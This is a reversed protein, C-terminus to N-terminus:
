NQLSRIKGRNHTLTVVSNGHLYPLQQGAYRHQKKEAADGKSLFGGLTWSLFGCRRSRGADAFDKVHFGAHLATQGRVRGDQRGAGLKGPASYSVYEVNVSM